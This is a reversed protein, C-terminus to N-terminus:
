KIIFKKQTKVVVGQSDFELIILLINSPLRNLNLQSKPVDLLLQGYSNYVKIITDETNLHDRDEVSIIEINEKRIFPDVMETQGCDPDDGNCDVLKFRKRQIYQTGLSPAYAEVTFYRPYYSFKPFDILSLCKGGYQHNGTMGYSSKFAASNPGILTWHYITSPLGGDICFEIYENEECTESNGSISYNCSPVNGNFTAYGTPVCIQEWARATAIFEDSCRGFRNLVITMMSTMLSTYTPAGGVTPLTELLINLAKTTGLAPIIGASSAGGSSVLYYWHGLPLGNAHANDGSTVPCQSPTMLNRNLTTAVGSIDDGMIWDIGSGGQIRSEIYTGIIDSIGEHLSQNIFSTYPFFSLTYVHGMEHAVVDYLATTSGNLVGINVFANSLTSGNLARTTGEETCSSINLKGFSIGLDDFHTIARSATWFTQYVSPTAETGWSSTNTTSPILSSVWDSTTLPSNPCFSYTAIRGDPSVLSSTSGVKLNNLFQPGYTVTPANLDMDNEATYLITGNSANVYSTKESDKLYEIRWVLINECEGSLNHSIILNADIISTIELISSLANKSITPTVDMSVGGIIQPFLMYADACPDSGPGITSITYGGGEVPVGKYFQQYRNYTMEEDLRSKTQKTLEFTTHSNAGMKQLLMGFSSSKEHDLYINGNDLVRTVLDKVENLMGNKMYNNYNTCDLNSTVLTQSHLVNQM